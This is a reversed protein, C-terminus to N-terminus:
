PLSGWSFKLDEPTTTPATAAAAITTTTDEPPRGLTQVHAAAAADGTQADARPKSGQPLPGWSFDGQQAAGDSSRADCESPTQSAEGPPAEVAQLTRPSSAPPASQLSRDAAGCAGDGAAAGAGMGAAAGAAPIPGWDFAKRPGAHPRHEATSVDGEVHVGLQPHEAKIKLMTERDTVRRPRSHADPPMKYAPEREKREEAKLKAVDVHPDGVLACPWWGAEAKELEIALQKGDIMWVSSSVSAHLRGSLIPSPEDTRTLRLSSGGHVGFRYQSARAGAPLAVYISLDHKSQTWSYGTGFEIPPM